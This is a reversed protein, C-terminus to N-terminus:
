SPPSSKSNHLLPGNIAIAIAILTISSCDGFPKMCCDVKLTTDLYNESKTLRLSREKKIQVKSSRILECCYSRSRTEIKYISRKEMKALKDFISRNKL